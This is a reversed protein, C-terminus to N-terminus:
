PTFLHSLRQTFIPLPVEKLAGCKADCARSDCRKADTPNQNIQMFYRTSPLLLHTTHNLTQLMVQQVQPYKKKKQQKLQKTALICYCCCCCCLFMVFNKCFFFFWFHPCQNSHIIHAHQGVQCLFCQQLISLEPELCINDIYTSNGGKEIMRRCERREEGRREEGGV